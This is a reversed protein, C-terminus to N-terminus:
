KKGVWGGEYAEGRFSEIEPHKLPVFDRKKIKGRGKLPPPYLLLTALICFLTGGNVCPKYYRM